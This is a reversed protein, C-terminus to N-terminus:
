RIFMVEIIVGFNLQNPANADSIEDQQDPVQVSGPREGVTSSVHKTCQPHCACEEPRREIAHEAM